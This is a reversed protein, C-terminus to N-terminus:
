PRSWCAGSVGGLLLLKEDAAQLLLLLKQESAQLM